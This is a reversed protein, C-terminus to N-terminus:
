GQEGEPVVRATRWVRRGGNNVCLERYREVWPGYTRTRRNEELAELVTYRTEDVVPLAKRFEASSMTFYGREGDLIGGQIVDAGVELWAHAFVEGDPARCVGHVITHSKIADPAAGARCIAELYELADDFCSHTPLICQGEREQAALEDARAVIREAVEPPTRAALARAAPEGFSSREILDAIPRDDDDDNM